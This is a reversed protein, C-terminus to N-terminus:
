AIKKQRRYKTWDIRQLQPKILCFIIFYMYRHYARAIYGGRKQPRSCNIRSSRPYGSVLIARTKFSETLCNSCYNRRREWTPKKLHHSSIKYTFATLPFYQTNHAKIRSHLWQFINFVCFSSNFLCCIYWHKTKSVNM